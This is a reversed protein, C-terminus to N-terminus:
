IENKNNENKSLYEEIDKRLYPNLNMELAKEPKIWIYEVAERGDLKVDKNKAKALFDVFIFHKKKYFDRPFIAEHLKLLELVDIDLGTEEKIERKTASEWDEGTEIHGGPITWMKENGWKPSKMLFIEGNENLILAAATPEPFEQSLSEKEIKIKSLDGNLVIPQMIEIEHNYSIEPIPNLIFIKKNLIYAFGIELFTNGGIYNKIGKKDFNAVLVADSNKIKNYHEKIVNNKIAREVIKGNEKQNKINELSIENNLIEKSTKPICVEFNLKKLDEAIKGMEYSFNLSGCITIKM